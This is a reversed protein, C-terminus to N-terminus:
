NETHTLIKINAFSVLLILLTIIASAAAAKSTQMSQFATNYAFVSM